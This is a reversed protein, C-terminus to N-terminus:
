SRGSCIAGAAPESRGSKGPKAGCEGAIGFGSSKSAACVSGGDGICLVATESEALVQRQGQEDVGCYLAALGRHAPGYDIGVKSFADYCENASVSRTCQARLANLDVVSGGAAVPGVAVQGQSHLQQADGSGSYIEFCIGGDEAALLEVDVDVADAGVVIPRLWAVQRLRIEEGEGVAASRAIAARVMELYAVGPLIRSGGVVHDSLFFEEGTFRSSFRQGSLDSTNEHLLPHLVAVANAADRLAPGAAKLGGFEELANDPIWYRERAFPYTPLSIRRPRADPQYLTTWDFALGKVWLDLLKGYKGKSAWAAITRAMDEDAAFVALSDKERRVQGHYFEAIGDEGSLYSELRSRLEAVSGVVLGLRVEMAERGVQLTYAIDALEGDPRSGLAAVLQRAREKLRDETRGSLVVLAPRRSSVEIVGRSSSSSAVYEEIVVHANVGGFGFSSVGARRPLDRGQADQLAQWPQSQQMIYFPSGSLSSIPISSM